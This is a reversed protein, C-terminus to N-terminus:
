SSKPWYHIGHPENEFHLYRRLLSYGTPFSSSDLFIIGYSGYRTYKISNSICSIREPDNVMGGIIVHQGIDLGPLRDNKIDTQRYALPRNNQSHFWLWKHSLLMEVSHTHDHLSEHTVTGDPHSKM